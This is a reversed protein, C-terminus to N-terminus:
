FFKKFIKFSSYIFEYENYVNNIELSSQISLKLDSFKTLTIARLFYSEILWSFM